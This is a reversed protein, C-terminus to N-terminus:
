TIVEIMSQCISFFSITFHSQISLAKLEANSDKEYDTHEAQPVKGEGKPVEAEAFIAICHGGYKGRDGSEFGLGLYHHSSDIYAFDM